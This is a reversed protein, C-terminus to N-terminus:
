VDKLVGLLRLGLIRNPLPASQYQGFNFRVGRIVYQVEHFNDTKVDVIPKLGRSMFRRKLEEVDDVKIGVARVGEEAPQDPQALGIGLTSMAFRVKQGAINAEFPALFTLGLVESFFGMSEELNRVHFTVQDLQEARM